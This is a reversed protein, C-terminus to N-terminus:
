GTYAVTKQRFVSIFEREALVIIDHIRDIGDCRLEGKNHLRLLEM